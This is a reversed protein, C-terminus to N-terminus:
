TYVSRLFTKSLLWEIVLLAGAIWVFWYYREADEKHFTVMNLKSKELRDIEDYIEKLKEKNTARYYKGDATTAIYQLLEEDIEVPAPMFAMTGM